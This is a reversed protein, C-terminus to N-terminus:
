INVNECTIGLLDLAVGIGALAKAFRDPRNGPVFLIVRVDRIDTM